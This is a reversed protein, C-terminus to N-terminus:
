EVTTKNVAYMQLSVRPSVHYLTSSRLILSFSVFSNLKSTRPLLTSVFEKIGALISPGHSRPHNSFDLLM